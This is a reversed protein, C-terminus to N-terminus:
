NSVKLFDKELIKRISPRKTPDKILMESILTRLDQSYQEAIPPYTSKLIKFVLGKMGLGIFCNNNSNSSSANVIPILLM